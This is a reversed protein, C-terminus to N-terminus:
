LDKVFGESLIRRYVLQAVEETMKHVGDPNTTKTLGPYIIKDEKISYVNTEVSYTKTTIYYCPTSYNSWNRYYYGSFNRYYTPYYSTNGPTYIREKDVDILRM